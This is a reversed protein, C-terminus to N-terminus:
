CCCSQKIDSPIFEILEWEIVNPNALVVDAAKMHLMVEREADAETKALVSVTVQIDYKEM